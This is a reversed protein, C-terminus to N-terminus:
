NEILKLAIDATYEAKQQMVAANEELTAVIDVRNKICEDIVSKYDGAALGRPEIFYPQKIYRQFSSVKPDYVVGIGPVAVTSAYILLHLRVGVTLESHSLINLISDASLRSAIFYSSNKMKQQIERIVKADYPYQMPLFVIKYGYEETIYDCMSAFGATFSEPQSKWKRPSVCVYKDGASIGCNELAYEYIRRNERRLAFVPDATVFVNETIGIKKLDDASDEDRLTIVDVGRLAKSVMKASAKHVFPGIGNSYLMTKGSLRKAMSLCFSYYMLSRRSTGDQLLSGGGMIFLKTHKLVRRLSLIDFRNVSAVKYIRATEEPTKSFVAIRIDPKRKKLSDIIAHLLTDDGSNRFGYYGLIAADYKGQNLAAKYMRMNDNAMKRSSYHELVVERCFAGLKSFEEKEMTLLTMIDSYLTNEDALDKSRCTFNSSMADSLKDKTLIGMYGFTGSLIVPKAQSMAELISRSIGICFTASANITAIDTRAGTLIIVRRGAANNIKTAKEALEEFGSGNGVIVIELDPVAELLRPAINILMNVPGCMDSDLRSVYVIRTADSNLNYETLFASSDAEPSFKGTDIGNISITVENEKIKKYNQVLYRKLDPSVALQKDGWRTLKGMLGRPNFTGHVTTVFSFSKNHKHILHCLLAPIRAHAHVVDPKEISIVRKLIFYAKTMDSLSHTTLPAFYHKIGYAEVEPQYAGGASVIVVHNGMKTLEKALETVHTEAGGIDLGMLAMLIKM